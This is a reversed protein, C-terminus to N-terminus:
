MGGIIAFGMSVNAIMPQVGIGEPNLDLVLPDYTISLSNPIIKTNYFDGIRLVLVPPTGFSTNVADNSISEGNEGKTQITDGPRVCQQLFTLRSNLGEPTMSHFAPNFHKIKQKGVATTL